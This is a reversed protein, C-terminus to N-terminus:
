LRHALPLSAGVMATLTEMDFPKRLCTQAGAAALEDAAPPTFATILITPVDGAQQRREKLLDVGRGDPLGQDCIILDTQGDQLAARGEKITSATRVHYGLSELEMAICWSLIEEDDVLVIRPAAKRDIADQFM